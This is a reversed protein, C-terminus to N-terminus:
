QGAAPLWCCCGHQKIKTGTAESSDVARSTNATSYCAFDNDDNSAISEIAVATADLTKSRPMSQLLQAAESMM